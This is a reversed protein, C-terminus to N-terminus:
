KSVKCDNHVIMDWATDLEAPQVTPYAILFDKDGSIHQSLLYAEEVSFCMLGRYIGKGEKL